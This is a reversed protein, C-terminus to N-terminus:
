VAYQLQINANTSWTLIQYFLQKNINKIIYKVVCDKQFEFHLAIYAVSIICM